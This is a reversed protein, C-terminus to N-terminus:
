IGSVRECEKDSNSAAAACSYDEERDCGHARYTDTDVKEVKVMAVPCQWHEAASKTVRQELSASGCGATLLAILVTPRILMM